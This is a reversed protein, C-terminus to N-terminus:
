LNVRRQMKSNVFLILSLPSIKSFLYSIKMNPPIIILKNNFMNDIAYKAAYKSSILHSNFKVNAVNMFNTDVPGPCFLSIKVNCNDKEIEKSIALTLNLVYSKTAYYTAMYPGPMFSAMSCVNMIYGRNNNIMDRLFLKTLIHYARINVDVMKMEKDLSTESFNGADGFGANNIVIDIDKDKLYNYLNYCNIDISLDYEICIVRDKYKNFIKDLEKKKTSVVYLNYGLDLLYLAMCKGIGSSAGTILVNM